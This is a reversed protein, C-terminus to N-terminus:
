HQLWETDDMKPLANFTEAKVGTAPIDIGLYKINSFNSFYSLTSKIKEREKALQWKYKLIVTQCTSEIKNTNDSVIEINEFWVEELESILNQLENSDKIQTADWSYIKVRKLHKLGNLFAWLKDHDLIDKIDISIEELYNLNELELSYLNLQGEDSFNPFNFETIKPYKNFLNSFAIADFPPTEQLSKNDYSNNVKVRQSNSLKEDINYNTTGAGYFTARPEQPNESKELTYKVFHKTFSSQGFCLSPGSILLFLAVFNPFAKLSTNFNIKHNGM